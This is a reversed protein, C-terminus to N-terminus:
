KIKGLSTAYLVTSGIENTATVRAVVFRGKDAKKIKYTVKSAKKIPTCQKKNVTSTSRQKKSCIYWQFTTANSWKWTGSTATVKAGVQLKRM